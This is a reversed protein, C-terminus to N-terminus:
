VTGTLPIVVTFHGSGVLRQISILDFIFCNTDPVIYKPIVVVQQSVEQKTRTELVQQMYFLFSVSINIAHAWVIM